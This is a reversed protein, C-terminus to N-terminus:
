LSARFEQDTSTIRQRERTFNSTILREVQAALAFIEERRRVRQRLVEAAQVRKQEPSWDMVIVTPDWYAELERHLRNLAAREEQDQGPSELVRFNEETEGRVRAFQDLYQQSHTPDSDLLYDRTLTAILYVNARISALASGALMHANHLSAVQDQANKANRWVAYGSAALIMLLAAFAATLLFSRRVLISRGIM